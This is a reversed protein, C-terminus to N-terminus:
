LHTMSVLANTAKSPSNSVSINGDKESEMNATSMMKFKKVAYVFECDITTEDGLSIAKFYM